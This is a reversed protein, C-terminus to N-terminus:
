GGKKDSGADSGADPKKEHERSYTSVHISAELKDKGKYDRRSIDLHTVMVYKSKTELEHLFKTLQDLTIDSVQASVSTTVFGNRTIGPMPNISGKLEFGAAKAANNIYTELSLAELPIGSVLDDSPQSQPGRAKLDDLVALAKRTKENQAAMNDLGDHIALGLWVAITLPAAIAAFVVLRRERPSIRDWFDRARESIASM